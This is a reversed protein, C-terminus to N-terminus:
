GETVAINEGSILVEDSDVVDGYNNGDYPTVKYTWVDGNKVYNSLLTTNPYADSYIPDAEGNKYWSIVSNDSESGGTNPDYYTYSAVLDQEKAIYNGDNDETIEDDGDASVITADTIYPPAYQGIIVINSRVATGWNNVDRPTVIVYWMDYERFPGDINEAPVDSARMVNRNDYASYQSYSTEGYRKVYWEITTGQEANNDDQSYDYTVSLRDTTSPSLPSLLVNEVVPPETTINYFKTDSLPIKSYEFGFDPDDIETNTYNLIEFGIRYKDNHQIELTVVDTYDLESHFLVSGEDPYLAYGDRRIVGNVRVTVVSDWPWSGKIATYVRRNTGTALEGSRTQLEGTQIIDVTIVDAAQRAIAFWVLGRDGILQYETVDSDIAFANVKVVVIDNEDDWTVTEGDDDIVRYILYDQSVSITELGVLEIDPTYYIGSQRNPLITQRNTVIQEADAWDTSDGRVIGWNIIANDPLDINPSLLCQSMIDGSQSETFKYKRSPTITWYKLSYIKPSPYDSDRYYYYSSAAYEYIYNYGSVYRCTLHNLELFEDNTDFGYIDYYNGGYINGLWGKIRYKFGYIFRDLTYRNNLPITEWEEYTTGNYSVSIEFTLSSTLPIIAGIEISDLYTLSGFEITDAYEGQFITKESNNLLENFSNRLREDTNDGLQYFKGNTGNVLELMQDERYNSGLAFCYVPTLDNGRVGDAAVILDPITTGQVNDWGDSMICEFTGMTSAYEEVLYSVISGYASIGSFGTSADYDPEINEEIYTYDIRNMQRMLELVEDQYDDRYIASIVYSSDVSGISREATEWLRSTDGTSKISGLAAHYDARSQTTGTTGQYIRDDFTWVSVYSFPSRRFIERIFLTAETTRISNPDGWTMSGTGDICLSLSFRMDLEMTNDTSIFWKNANDQSLQVVNEVTTAVQPSDYFVKFFHDENPYLTWVSEETAREGGTYPDTLNSKIWGVPSLLTEDLGKEVLVLAYRNDLYSGYLSFTDNFPFNYFADRNVDNETISESETLVTDTPKGDDDVSRIQVTYITQAEIDISYFETTDIQNNYVTEHWGSPVNQNHIRVGDFFGRVGLFTAINDANAIQVDETNTTISLTDTNNAVLEGNVYLSHNNSGNSSFALHNWSYPALINKAIILAKNDHTFILDNISILLGWGEYSSNIKSIIYQPDKFFPYIWAELGFPNGNNFMLSESHPVILKGYRTLRTTGHIVSLDVQGANHMLKDTRMWAFNTYGDYNGTADTLEGITGNWSADQMHYAAHYQQWTAQQFATTPAVADSNGYYLYFKQEDLSESADNLFQSTYIELKQTGKNIIVIEHNKVTEGDSSTFVIDNGYDNVHSWFHSPINKEDIYVPFNELEGSIKDQDITFELRYLWDNSLWAM